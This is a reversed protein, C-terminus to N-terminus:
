STLPSTHCVRGAAPADAATPTARQCPGGDAEAERRLRVADACRACMAIEVEDGGGTPFELVETAVHSCIGMQTRHAVWCPCQCESV